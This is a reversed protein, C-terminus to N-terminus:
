GGSDGVLRTVEAIVQAQATQASFVYGLLAIMLLLIPAMSFLAYFALAAGKSGARHDIWSDIFQMFFLRTNNIRLHPTTFLKILRSAPLLQSGIYNAPSTQCGDFM